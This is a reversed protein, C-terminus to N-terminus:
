ENKQSINNEAASVNDFCGGYKAKDWQVNNIDTINCKASIVIFKETQKNDALTVSWIEHADIFSRPSIPPRLTSVHSKAKNRQSRYARIRQPPAEIKCNYLKQILAPVLDLAEQAVYMPINGIQDDAKILKKKTTSAYSYSGLGVEYDVPRTGDLGRLDSVYNWGNMGGDHVPYYPDQNGSMMKEIQTVSEDTLNYDQYHEPHISVMKNKALDTTLAIAYEEPYIEKYYDLLNVIGNSALRIGAEESDAIEGLCLRLPESKPFLAGALQLKKKISFNKAIKLVTNLRSAYIPRDDVLVPYVEYGMKNLEDAIAKKLNNNYRLTFSDFLNQLTGDIGNWYVLLYNALAKPNFEMPLVEQAAERVLNQKTLIRDDLLNINNMQSMQNGGFTKDNYNIKKSAWQQFQYPDQNYGFLFDNRSTADTYTEDDRWNLDQEYDYENEYEIKKTFESM